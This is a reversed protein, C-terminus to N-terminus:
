LGNMSEEVVPLSFTHWVATSENCVIKSMGMVAARAAFGAGSGVGAGPDSAGVVGTFGAAWATAAPGSSFNWGAGPKGRMGRRRLLGGRVRFLWFGRGGRRM